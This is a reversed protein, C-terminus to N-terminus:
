PKTKDDPSKGFKKIEDINSTKNMSLRMEDIETCVKDKTSEEEKSARVKIGKIILDKGRIEWELIEIQVFQHAVQKMLEPYERKVQNLEQM